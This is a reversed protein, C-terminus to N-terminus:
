DGKHAPKFTLDVDLTDLWDAIAERTWQHQDNLHQIMNYFTEPSGDCAPCPATETFLEPLVERLEEGPTRHNVWAKALDLDDQLLSETVGVAMASVYYGQPKTTFIPAPAVYPPVPPPLQFHVPM